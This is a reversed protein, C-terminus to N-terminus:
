LTNPIMRNAFLGCDRPAARFEPNYFYEVVSGLAIRSMTLGVLQIRAAGNEAGLGVRM